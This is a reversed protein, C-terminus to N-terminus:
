VLRACILYRRRGRPSPCTGLHDNRRTGSYNASRQSAGPERHLDITALGQSRTSVANQRRHDGRSGLSAEAFNPGAHIRRLHSTDLDPLGRPLFRVPDAENPIHRFVFNFVGKRHLDMLANLAQDQGAKLATVFSLDPDEQTM